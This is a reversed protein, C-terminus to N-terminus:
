MQPGAEGGYLVTAQTDERRRGGRGSVKSYKKQDRVERTGPNTGEGIRGASGKSHRTVMTANGWKADRM